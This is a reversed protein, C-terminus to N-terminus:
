FGEKQWNHTQPAVEDDVWDSVGISDIIIYNRMRARDQRVEELIRTFDDLNFSAPLEESM